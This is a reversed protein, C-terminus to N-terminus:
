TSASASRLNKFAKYDMVKKQLTTEGSLDDLLGSKFGNVNSYTEKPKKIFQFNIMKGLSIFRNMNHEPANTNAEKNAIKNTGNITEKKSNLTKKMSRKTVSNDNISFKKVVTPKPKEVEQHIKILPSTIISDDMFFDRCCYITVYKMAVANLLDYPLNYSDSYYAFGQKYTDYVMVINGRPTYEFLIRQRWNRELYNDPDKMLEQYEKKDYFASEINKNSQMIDSLFREKQTEVYNNTLDLITLPKIIPQFPVFLYYLKLFFNIIFVYIRLVSRKFEQIRM